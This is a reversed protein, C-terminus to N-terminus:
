RSRQGAKRNIGKYRVTSPLKEPLDLEDDVIDELHVGAVRAYRLLTALPPENRGLEYKSINTYEVQDELELRRHMEGQSLGLALRIERLKDPLRAPRPRSGKGM